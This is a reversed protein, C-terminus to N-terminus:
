LVISTMFNFFHVPAVGPDMKYTYNLQFRFRQIPYWSAGVTVYNQANAFWGGSRSNEKFYDYRAGVTLNSALKAGLSAYVAQSRWGFTHGAMYESRFWALKGDYSIGGGYRDYIYYDYDHYEPPTGPDPGFSRLYYGSVYLDKVPYFMMRVVVDKRRDDDSKNIGNGNFVAVNYRILSHDGDMKLLNGYFQIGMERGTSSIGSLDANSMRVFRQVLLSYDIMELKLPAFESNEISLPSKFQGLQVGFYDNVTYKIFYDVLKPSGALEAQVKYDLKGFRGEYLGGGLSIRARRIYFTNNFSNDMSFGTQFYGSPTIYKLWPREQASVTRFSSTAAVLLLFTLILKKM